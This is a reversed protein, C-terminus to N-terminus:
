GILMVPKGVLTAAVTMLNTGPATGSWSLSWEGGGYDTPLNLTVYLWKGHYRNDGSSTTLIAPQGSQTSMRLWAPYTVSGGSAPPVIRLTVTGNALGPNYLRLTIQRGAFQAPINALPYTQTGSGHLLATTANWGTVTAGDIACGAVRSANHCIKVGYAHVGYGTNTDVTLRYFSPGNPNGTLLQTGMQVWHGVDNPMVAVCGQGGTIPPHYTSGGTLDWAKAWSCGHLGLDSVNADLAPLTVIQAANLAPNPATNPPTTFPWIAALPVDATRNYLQPVTFLTYAIQPYFAPNDTAGTTYINETPFLQGYRNGPIYVFRPNWVWVSYGSGNQPITILYSTGTPLPTTRTALGGFGSPIQDPNGPSGPSCNPGSGYQPANTTVGLPITTYIPTTADEHAADAGDSWGTECQVSYPDGREKLEYPSSLGAYQQTINEYRDGFTGSADGLAIPPLLEATASPQTTIPAAGLLSSFSLPVSIHITVRLTPVSSTSPTITVASADLVGNQAAVQVARDTADNGDPAPSTATLYQPLYLVGALAAAEAARQGQSYAIYLRLGDISLGVLMLLAVISLAFLVLAQGRAAHYKRCRAAKRSTYRM